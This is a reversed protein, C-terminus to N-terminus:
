RSTAASAPRAASAPKSAAMGAKRQEAVQRQKEALPAFPGYKHQDASAGLLYPPFAADIPKNWRAPFNAELRAKVPRPKSLMYALDRFPGEPLAEIAPVPRGILSFKPTPEAAPAAAALLALTSFAASKLANM